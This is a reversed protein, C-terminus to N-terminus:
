SSGDTRENKSRKTFGALYLAAMLIFSLAFSLMINFHLPGLLMLPMQLWATARIVPLFYFQPVIGLVGPFFGGYVLRQIVILLLSVLAFSNGILFSINRSKIYDYSKYGAFFWYGCFLLTALSTTIGYLDFRTMFYNFFYGAILPSLSFLFLKISRLM